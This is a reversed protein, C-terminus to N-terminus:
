KRKIGKCITLEGSTSLEYNYAEMAKFFIEKCRGSHLEVCINRTRDLWSQYNRSFVEQEAGEIDMKLIDIKHYKDSKFVEDLSFGWVDNGGDMVRTATKKDSMLLELKTHKSWVAANWALFGTRAGVKGHMRTEIEVLSINKILWEFNEKDPEFCIIEAEPYFQHLYLSVYGVYAGADVILKVDQIGKLPAFIQEYFVQRLSMRDGANNPRFHVAYDKNM